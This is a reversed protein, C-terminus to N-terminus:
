QSPDAAQGAAEAAASAAPAAQEAAAFGLERDLQLHRYASWVARHLDAKIQPAPM